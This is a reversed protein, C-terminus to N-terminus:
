SKEWIDDISANFDSFGNLGRIGAVYFAIDSMVLGHQPGGDSAVNLRMLQVKFLRKFGGNIEEILERIQQPSLIDYIGEHFKSIQKVINRFCNSPVPAKVEYKTLNSEFMADMISVLKASIMTIHDNYDKFLQEFHKLMNLQKNTLQSEFHSKVSPLYHVILQLCRSALALNKTSITKLGVLHVAGAGIILQCTRSNFTKLLEVLRNLIEPTASPINDIFQCYEVLIKLLMLITGVVSFKEGNIYLYEQPKSESDSKKVPLNLKGTSSIHDVMEQFDVPVDAQRWRENDLILSLKNIRDEHFRQVFRSSQGQLCSRLSVSQKGILNGSDRVFGEITQSLQVFESLLLRDLFGDKARANLVKICRDHSHDCVHCLMDRLSKSIQLYEVDSLAKDADGTIRLVTDHWPCDKELEKDKEEEVPQFFDSKTVAKAVDQIVDNIMKVRGLLIILNHFLQDLLTMWQSYNLLRMQNALSNPACDTDIDDAVSVAEIVTQKVITRISTCAEEECIEIMSNNQLRLIGLVIMVLRDHDVFADEEAIPKYFLSHTFSVFEARMMREILKEMEMLQLGLHRFCHIGVLEQSLIEQTTAILDLAGIFDNTGLLRQITPQTQYITAMLRLKKYVKLHNSRTKSLQVIKLPSQVLICDLLRVRERLHQICSCTRRMHDELEDHSIMASFFAESRVSIQKTIQVEVLDLYHSLKEQLLKSSQVSKESSSDQRHTKIQQWPLVQNFTEPNQLSFGPQMFIKPIVDLDIQFRKQKRAYASPFERDSEGDGVADNEASTAVNKLALNHKRFRASTKALYKRFHEKTIHPVYPSPVVEAREFSEGWTKSFFDTERRALRPDNLAAPLNVQSMYVTWRHQDQVVSPVCSPPAPPPSTQRGSSLNRRDKLSPSAPTSSSSNSETAVHDRAVHDEYDQDSVGEVPLSPCVGNPGYRCVFSGGEKTCHYDRLHRCFEAPSRFSTAGDSRRCVLCGKWPVVYGGVVSASCLNDPVSAAIRAPTAM